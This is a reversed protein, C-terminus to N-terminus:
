PPCSPCLLRPPSTSLNALDEGPHIIQSPFGVISQQFILHEGRMGKRIMCASIGMVIVASSWQITRTLLALPLTLTASVM